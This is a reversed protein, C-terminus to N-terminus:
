IFRRSGALHLPLEYLSIICGRKGVSVPWLHYFPDIDDQFRVTVMAKTMRTTTFKGGAGEASDAV